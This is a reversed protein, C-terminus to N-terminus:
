LNLSDIISRSFMGKGAARGSHSFGDQTSYKSLFPVTNILFGASNESQKTRSAGEKTKFNLFLRIETVGRLLRRDEGTLSEVPLHLHVGTGLGDEERGHHAQM